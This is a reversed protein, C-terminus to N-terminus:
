HKHSSTCCVVTVIKWAPRILDCFPDVVMDHVVKWFVQWVSVGQVGQTQYNLHTWFTCVVLIFRKLVNMGIIPLVYFKILTPHPYSWSQISFNGIKELFHDMEGWTQIHNTLGHVAAQILHFVTCAHAEVHPVDFPNSMPITVLM